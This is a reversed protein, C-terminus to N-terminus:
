SVKKLYRETWPCVAICVGCISVEKDFNRRTLERAKARCKVVDVLSDRQIGPYWNKGTLVGAPCADVCARCDGCKSENVPEGFPLVADTLVSTLRVASGYAPTILLDSKGVWGLGARTAVMKHSLKASLTAMDTIKSHKGTDIANDTAATYSAKYGRERLFKSIAKGASDLLQNIRIYEEHYRGTPGNRIGAIIGPNLSIAISIGYPFGPQIETPLHRLDAFGIIDVGNEEALNRIGDALNESIM